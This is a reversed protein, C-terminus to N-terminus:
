APAPASRRLAARFDVAPSRLKRDPSIADFINGDVPPPGDKVVLGDDPADSSTDDPDCDVDSEYRGCESVDQLRRARRLRLAPRAAGPHGDGRKDIFAFSRCSVICKAQCAASFRCHNAGACSARAPAM